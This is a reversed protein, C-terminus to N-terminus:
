IPLPFINKLKGLLICLFLINIDSDALSINMWTTDIYLKVNVSIHQPCHFVSWILNWSLFNYVPPVYVFCTSEWFSELYQYFCIVMRSVSLIYLIRSKISSLLFTMMIRRFSISFQLTSTFVIFITNNLTLWTNQEM